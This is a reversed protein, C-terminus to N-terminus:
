ADPAGAELGQLRWVGNFSLTLRALPAVDIRFATADPGGLVHALAARLVSPYTVALIRADSAALDDMWASVRRRVAEFPEGGPVGAAPNKMWAALAAPDEEQIDMLGRGRWGGWDMDALSPEISGSLGLAQATQGAAPGPGIYVRQPAPRLSVAGAKSRGAEDIEESLRSFAGERMARTAAHCM